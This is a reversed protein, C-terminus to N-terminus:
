KKECEPCQHGRKGGKPKGLDGGSQNSQEDVEDVSFYCLFSKLVVSGSGRVTEFRSVM